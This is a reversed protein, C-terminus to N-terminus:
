CYDFLTADFVAHAFVLAAASVLSGASTISRKTADKALELIKNERRMAEPNKFIKSLKSDELIALVTDINELELAKHGFPM